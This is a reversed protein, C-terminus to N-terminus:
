SGIRYRVIDSWFTGPPADGRREVAWIANRSVEIPSVDSPLAFVGVVDGRGDILLFQVAPTQRYLWILVSGDNGLYMYDVPNKHSPMNARLISDIRGAQHPEVSRAVQAVREARISEGEAATIAITPVRYSRLFSVTGEVTSLAIRVVAPDTIPDNIGLYAVLRGDPSTASNRSSCFPLSVYVPNGSMDPAPSLRECNGNLPILTDATFSVLRHDATTRILFPRQVFRDDGGVIGLM